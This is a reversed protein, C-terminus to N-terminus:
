QGVKCASLNYSVDIAVGGVIITLILLTTCIILVKGM